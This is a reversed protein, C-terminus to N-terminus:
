KIPPLSLSARQEKPMVPVTWSRFMLDEVLMEVHVCQTDGYLYANSAAELPDIPSTKINLVTYGNNQRYLEDIFKNLYAPDLDLKLTMLVVDYGGGVNPDVWHGTVSRGFDLGGAGGSGSTSSGSMGLFLQGSSSDNKTLGTAGVSINELRKVPSKGVNPYDKGDPGTNTSCIAKVVDNQLWSDMLAEFIQM